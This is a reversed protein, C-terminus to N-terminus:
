QKSGGAPKADALAEWRTGDGPPSWMPIPWKYWEVGMISQINLLLGKDFRSVYCGDVRKCHNECFEITTMNKAVLWCHFAFFPTLTASLMSMLVVGQSIMFKKGAPLTCTALAHVLQYDAFCSSFVTYMLFLLFYKHNYFGVCNSLWPCYHDM